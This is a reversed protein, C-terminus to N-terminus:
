TMSYEYFIIQHVNGQSHMTWDKHYILTLQDLRKYVQLICLTLWRCVSDIYADHLGGLNGGDKCKKQDGGDCCDVGVSLAGHRQEVQHAIGDRCVAETGVCVVAWHDEANFLAMHPLKRDVKKGLTPGAVEFPDVVCGADDAVPTIDMFLIYLYPLTYKACSPFQHKVKSRAIVTKPLDLCVAEVSGVELVTHVGEDLGPVLFCQM